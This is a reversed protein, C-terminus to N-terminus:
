ADAAKRAIRRPFRRAFSERRTGADYTMARQFLFADITVAAGCRVCRLTVDTTDQRFSPRVEGHACRKLRKRERRIGGLPATM